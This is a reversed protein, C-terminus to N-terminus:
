YAIAEFPLSAVQGTTNGVALKTGVEAADRHIIALAANPHTTVSSITGVTKDGLVIADGEATAGELRLGRLIRNVKGYTRIRAIIEQGIYCGKAYSIARAEIGGEPALNDTTFDKGFRPIGALVRAKEFAAESCEPAHSQLQSKLDAMADVPVFLDFGTTGLRPQHIVFFEDATKAVSFPEEPAPLNLAAMVDGAQPGQVSLLGFHPAVDAVEVDEAIIFSELRSRVADTLAPEFDLLLEDALRYVFLDSEMKGKANVLAAYCGTHEALGKIDNTVQGHLFAARDAGLLCLRSRDSLDRWGAAQTLTAFDDDVRPNHVLM